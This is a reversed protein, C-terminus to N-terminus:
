IRCHVEVVASDEPNYDPDDPAFPRDTARVAQMKDVLWLKGFGLGGSRSDGGIQIARLAERGRKNRGHCYPQVVRHRGDYDFELLCRSRIAQCIPSM